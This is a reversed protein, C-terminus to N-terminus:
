WLLMDVIYETGRFLRWLLYLFTSYRSGGKSPATVTFLRTVVMTGGGCGGGGGGAGTGTRGSGIGIGIGSGTGDRAGEMMSAEGGGTSCRGGAETMSGSAGSDGM